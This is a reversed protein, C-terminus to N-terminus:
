FEFDLLDEHLKPIGHQGATKKKEDCRCYDRIARADRLDYFYNIDMLIFPCDNEPCDLCHSITFLRHSRVDELILHFVGENYYCDALLVNSMKNGPATTYHFIFYEKGITLIKDAVMISDSNVYFSDNGVTHYVNNLGLIASDYPYKDKAKM